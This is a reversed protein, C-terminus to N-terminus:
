QKSRAEEISKNVLEAVNTKEYPAVLTSHIMAEKGRRLGEHYAGAAISKLYADTMTIEVIEPAKYERLGERKMWSAFRNSWWDGERYLERPAKCRCLQMIWSQELNREPCGQEDTFSIAPLKQHYDMEWFRFLDAIRSAYLDIAVEDSLFGQPDLQHAAEADIHVLALPSMLQPCGEITDVLDQNSSSDLDVIQRLDHVAWGSSVALNLIGYDRWTKGDWHDKYDAYVMVIMGDGDEIIERLQEMLEAENGYERVSAHLRMRKGMPAIHVKAGMVETMYRLPNYGVRSGVEHKVTYVPSQPDGEFVVKMGEPIM